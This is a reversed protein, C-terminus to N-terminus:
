IGLAAGPPNFYHCSAPSNSYKTIVYQILQNEYIQENRSYWKMPLCSYFMWSWSNRIAITDNSLIFLVNITGCRMKRITDNSPIFLVNVVVYDAYCVVQSLQRCCFSSEPFCWSTKWKNTFPCSIYMYVPIRHSTIDTDSIPATPALADIHHVNRHCWLSRSPTKFWWGWLQKRLWKNPHLDFYVDFSRTVPRQTPFEGPVPSKGACIALLASFTEMQHHCLTHQIAHCASGSLFAIYTKHYWQRTELANTILCQNCVVDYECTNNWTCISPKTCFQPLELAKAISKGCIQVSGNINLFVMNLVYLTRYHLLLIHIYFTYISFTHISPLLYTNFTSPIYQCYM